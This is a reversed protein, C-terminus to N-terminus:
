RPLWVTGGGLGDGLGDTVGEGSGNRVTGPDEGFGARPVSAGGSAGGVHQVAKAGTRCSILRIVM